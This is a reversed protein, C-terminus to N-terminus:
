WVTSRPLAALIICWMRPNGNFTVSISLTAGTREMRLHGAGLQIHLRIKPIQLQLLADAPLQLTGRGQFLFLCLYNDISYFNLRRCKAYSNWATLKPLLYLAQIRTAVGTAATLPCKEVHECCDSRLVAAFGHAKSSGKPERTSPKKILEKCSSCYM